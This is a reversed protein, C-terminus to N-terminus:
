GYNGIYCTREEKRQMTVVNNEIVEIVTEEKEINAKPFYGSAAVCLLCLCKKYLCSKCEAFRKNVLRKGM